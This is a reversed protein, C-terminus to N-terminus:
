VYGLVSLSSLAVNSVRRFIVRLGQPWEWGRSIQNKWINFLFTQRDIQRDSSFPDLEVDVDSSTTLTLIIVSVSESKSHFATVLRSFFATNHDHTYIECHFV